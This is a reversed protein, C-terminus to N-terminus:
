PHINEDNPFMYEGVIIGYIHGIACGILVCPMFIGAPVATGATIITFVFWIFFFLVVEGM